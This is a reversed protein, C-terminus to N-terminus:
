IAGVPDGAPFADVLVQSVPLHFSTVTVSGCARMKSARHPTAESEFAMELM